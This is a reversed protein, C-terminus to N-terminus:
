YSFLFLLQRESDYGFWYAHFGSRWLIGDFHRLSAAEWWEPLRVGDHVQPSTTAFGLPCLALDDRDDSEVDAGRTALVASRLEAFREPALQIRYLYDHDKFGDIWVRELSGAPLGAWGFREGLNAALWREWEAAPYEKGEVISDMSHRLWFCGGIALAVCVLLFKPLFHHIRFM